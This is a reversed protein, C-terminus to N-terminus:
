KKDLPIIFMSLVVKSYIFIVILITKRLVNRVSIAATNTHHSRSYQFFLGAKFHKKTGLFENKQQIYYRGLYTTYNMCIRVCIENNLNM